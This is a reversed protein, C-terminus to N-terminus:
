DGRKLYEPLVKWAWITAPLALSLSVIIRFWIPM